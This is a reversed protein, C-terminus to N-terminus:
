DKGVSIVEGTIADINVEMTDKSDPTTMDFSWQLHGKEHELEGEKIAGNPIKAMAIKEADARSIKAESKDAKESECGAIVGAALILCVIKKM